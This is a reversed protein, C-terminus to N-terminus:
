PTAIPGLDKLSFEVKPKLDSCACTTRRNANLLARRGDDIATDGAM